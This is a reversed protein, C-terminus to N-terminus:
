ETALMAPRYAPMVKVFLNQPATADSYDFDVFYPPLKSEDVDWLTPNTELRVESVPSTEILM